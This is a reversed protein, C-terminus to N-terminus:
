RIDIIAHGRHPNECFHNFKHIQKELLWDHAYVDEVIIIEKEKLDDLSTIPTSKESSFLM